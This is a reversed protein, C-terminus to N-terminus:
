FPSQFELLVPKGAGIQKQVEAAEGILPTQTPHLVVWAAIMALLIVAFAAYDRIKPKNTLLILGSVVAVVAAITLISYSNTLANM